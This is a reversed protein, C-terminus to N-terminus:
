TLSGMIALHWESAEAIFRAFLMIGAAVDPNNITIHEGAAVYDPVVAATTADAHFSIGAFTSMNQIVIQKISAYHALEVYKGGWYVEEVFKHDIQNSDESVASYIKTSQTNDEDPGYIGKLSMESYNPNPM